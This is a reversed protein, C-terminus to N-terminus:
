GALGRLLIGAVAIVNIALHHVVSFWYGAVRREARLILVSMFFFGPFVAIYAAQGSALVHILTWSLAAFVSILYCGRLVKALLATVGWLLLNELMPAVSLAYVMKGASVNEELHAWGGSPM